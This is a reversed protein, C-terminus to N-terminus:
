YEYKQERHKTACSKVKEQCNSPFESLIIEIVDAKDGTETLLCCNKQRLIIKDLMVHKQRLLYDQKM